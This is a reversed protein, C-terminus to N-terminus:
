GFFSLAGVQAIRPHLDPRRSINELFWPNTIENLRAYYLAPPPPTALVSRQAVTVDDPRTGEFIGDIEQLLTQVTWIRPDPVVERSNELQSSAQNTNNLVQVWDGNFWGRSVRNRLVFAIALMGNLGESFGDAHARRVIQAKIFDAGNVLDECNRM